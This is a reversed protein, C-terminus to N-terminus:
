INDFYLISDFHVQYLINDFYVLYIILTYNTINTEPDTGAFLMKEERTGEWKM